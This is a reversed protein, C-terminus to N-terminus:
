LERVKDELLKIFGFQGPDIPNLYTEMIEKHCGEVKLRVGFCLNEPDWEVRGIRSLELLYDELSRPDNPSKSPWDTYLIRVWDGEFISKKDSDLKVFQGVSDPIVDAEIVRNPLGWDMLESYVIKHVEPEVGDEKLCYTTTKYNVYSGVVWYGPIREGNVIIIDAGNKSPHFGKYFNKTM